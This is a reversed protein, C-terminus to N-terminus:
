DCQAACASSTTEEVHWRCVDCTPCTCYGQFCYGDDLPCEDSDSCPEGGIWSHEAVCTACSAALGETLAGCADNCSEEADTCSAVTFVCAAECKAAYEYGQSQPQSNTESGSEDQGCSPLLSVAFVAHAAFVLTRM